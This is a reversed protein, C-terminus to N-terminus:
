INRSQRITYMLYILELNLFLQITKIKSENRLPFEKLMKVNLNKLFSPFLVWKNIKSFSASLPRILIIIVGFVASFFEVGQGMLKEGM